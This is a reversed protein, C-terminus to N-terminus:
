FGVNDRSEVSFGFIQFILQCVLLKEELNTRFRKNLRTTSIEVKCRAKCWFLRTIVAPVHGGLDSWAASYISGYIEFYIKYSAFYFEM